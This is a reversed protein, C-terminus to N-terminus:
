CRIGCRLLIGGILKPITRKSPRRWWQRERPGRVRWRDNNSFLNAFLAFYFHTKESRVQWSPEPLEALRQWLGRLAVIPFGNASDARDYLSRLFQLGKASFEFTALPLEEPAIDAAWNYV